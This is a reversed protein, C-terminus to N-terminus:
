GPEIMHSMLYRRIYFNSADLAVGKLFRYRRCFGIKAPTYCSAPDRSVKKARFKKSIRYLRLLCAAGVVGSLTFATYSSPITRTSWPVAMPKRARTVEGVLFHECLRKLGLIKSGELKQARALQTIDPCVGSLKSRMHPEISALFSEFRDHKLQQLDRYVATSDTFDRSSMIPSSSIVPYAVELRSLVKFVIYYITRSVIPLDKRSTFHLPNADRVIYIFSNASTSQQLQVVLSRITSASIFVNNVSETLEM